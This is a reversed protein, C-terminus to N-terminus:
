RRLLVVILNLIITLVLSLLIMTALPIYVQVRGSQFSIDGPLRGLFPLNGAVMLLLGLLFLVGGLLLLIRGIDVLPM